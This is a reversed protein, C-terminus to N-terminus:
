MFRTYRTFLLGANHLYVLVLAISLWGALRGPRLRLRRMWAAGLLALFPMTQLMYTAKITDGKGPSPYMILFWLYGAFSAVIVAVAVVELSLPRGDRSEALWSWTRRLGLGFGLLLVATPLLALLQARGLYRNITFRNTDLRAASEPRALARELAGGPVYRGTDLDKAYVLFYCEYDGWMESYFIPLLENAFSRRVPDTFLEPLGLGLYFHVPQNALSFSPEGSRNFATASGEVTRLHIYFWGAGVALVVVSIAMAALLRRVADRRRVMQAGLAALIGAIALLGWQRSLAMAAFAIGLLLGRRATPGRDEAPLLAQGAAAVTVLALLPEGRILAFSKVWVPLFGLFGFAWAMTVPDDPWRRRSLRALLVFTLVSYLLNLLQALKRMGRTALLGFHKALAPVLYPLPPSFFERSQASTPLKLHSYIELNKLHQRADYGVYPHHYVANYAMVLHVALAVALPAWCRWTPHATM